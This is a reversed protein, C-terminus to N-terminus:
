RDARKEINLNNIIKNSVHRWFPKFDDVSFIYYGDHPHIKLFDIITAVKYSVTYQGKIVSIMRLLDDIIVHRCRVGTKYDFSKKIDGTSVMEYLLSPFDVGADIAVQLSGWFRPNIEMLKPEGTREDVLFDIDAIGFYNLSEMLKVSINVLEPYKVTEVYCAAGTETPYNRIEKIVCIRRVQSDANCLVGVTYKNCFPIKEQIMHPGYNKFFSKEVTYLENLSQVFLIGEGGSGTSPRLVVPFTLINSIDEIDKSQSIFFTRPCPINNEIAHQILRYKSTVIELTPYEPFALSCPLIKQNKSIECMTEEHMPFLIDDKSLKLLFNMDTNTIHFNKCYKSHLALAREYKSAVAFDINNKGLSRVVALSVHDDLESTIIAKMKCL